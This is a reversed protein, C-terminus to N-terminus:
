KKTPIVCTIDMGGSRRREIKLEGGLANARYRMMHLGLGKGRKKVAFGKGDDQVSVCTHTKNRDLTILVNKAGSHKVANTVAEQAIRYLHLAVTDDPVHVGRAVKVHCKIGSNDCATAALGRLANKLGSATLEVAQLGRALERAIVVNRNVTQASEELTKAAALNEAAIRTATSKLFLATATLEQCVMDHLDEGIRRRERESVELLERELEQRQGMTSELERNIAVLERTREVVRQEMEDRAHALEDEIRRHDTADRAVKAFGRLTGGEDDLRMLVGDAWFRSRDKRVHFRRDLARGDTLAGNIEKEVEGKKRDEPTFIIAGSQGIAEKQTWGFVREAGANWFTIVNAPDLLFMAYDRAGEVLLRFREESARLEQEARKLDHVDTATGFWSTVRGAADHLPVNRGIFWRYEGKKARLRYETEFVKGAALARKWRAVSTPADSPHVIAQWGRGVSEEFTLGSYEYWRQNFYDAKGGGENTWILQPVADALTRLRQESQELAEESQKRDSIDYFCNIAGIIEGRDDKLVRPGVIVNKRTGDAQAVVVECDSATLEEGKLVRAVPCEHHPMPTGDSHFMKFSGCFKEGKPDPTRGWLEVARRNFEQIIGQADTCYVAVPVLEFLTRYRLDGNRGNTGNSQKKASQVIDKPSVAM